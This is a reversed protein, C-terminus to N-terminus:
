TTKYRRVADRLLSRVVQFLSYDYRRLQILEMRLFLPYHTNNANHVILGGENDLGVRVDSYADDNSSVLTFTVVAENSRTRRYRAFLPARWWSKEAWTLVPVDKYQMLDPSPTARRLKVAEFLTALSVEVETVEGSVPQQAVTPAATSNM